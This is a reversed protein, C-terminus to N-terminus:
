RQSEVAEPRQAELLTLGATTLRVVTRGSESATEVLGADNADEWVTLRPCSTRWADMTEQYTRKKRRVWELLDLILSPVPDGM